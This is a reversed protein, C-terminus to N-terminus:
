ENGNNIISNYLHNVGQIFKNAINKSSSFEELWICRYPMEYIDMSVATMGEISRKFCVRSMEIGKYTFCRLKAIEPIELSEKFQTKLDLVEQESLDSVTGIKNLLTLSKTDNETCYKFMYTNNFKPAEQIDQVPIESEEIYIDDFYLVYIDDLKKADQIKITDLMVYAKTNGEEIKHSINITFIEYISCMDSVEMQITTFNGNFYYQRYKIKKM